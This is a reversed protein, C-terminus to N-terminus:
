DIEEAAGIAALVTGLRDAFRGSVDRELRAQREAFHDHPPFGQLHDLPDYTQLDAALDQVSDAVYVAHHDLEGQWSTRYVIEGVWKGAATRYIRVNHWRNHEKGGHWWGSEDAIMEGRFKLPQGGTRELEFAEAQAQRRAADQEQDYLSLAELVAAEAVQRPIKRQLNLLSGIVSNGLPAGERADQRYHESSRILELAEQTPTM